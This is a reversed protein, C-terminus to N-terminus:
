VIDVLTFIFGLVQDMLECRVTCNEVKAYERVADIAPQTVVGNWFRVVIERTKPSNQLRDRYWKTNEDGTRDFFASPISDFQIWGPGRICNRDVHLIPDRDEGFRFLEVAFNQDRITEDCLALTRFLNGIYLRKELSGKDVWCVEQDEDVRRVETFSALNYMGFVLKNVGVLEAFRHSIQGALEKLDEFQCLKSAGFLPGVSFKEGSCASDRFLRYAYCGEEDFAVRSM